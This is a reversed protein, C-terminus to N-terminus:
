RRGFRRKRRGGCKRCGIIDYSGHKDGETFMNVKYEDHECDDNFPEIIVADDHTRVGYWHVKRASGYRNACEECAHYCFRDVTYWYCVADVKEGHDNRHFWCYRKPKPKEQKKTPIYYPNKEIEERYQKEKLGEPTQEYCEWHMPREPHAYYGEDLTIEKGCKVCEIM